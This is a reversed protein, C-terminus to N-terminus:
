QTAGRKCSPCCDPHYWGPDDDGLDPDDDMLVHGQDTHVPLGCTPCRPESATM